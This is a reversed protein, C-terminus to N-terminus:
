YKEILKVLLRIPTGVSGKALFEGEVSSMRPAIDLHVWPYEKAFEYLFMAGHIAEGYRTKGVNAIDGFNGKIEDLYEDWLPLPWLYDGSEEGIQRFLKELHIDKTFLASAHQGLAVIAAGTLTAIDVVLRPNYKKAYTLADALIIRGEADTNLAEITKGSMTKLIDGPRFSQGSPMNEVAPILGVVNKKLKLAASAVISHIVAAGGTMDMNMELMGDGRKLNLGGSDFTVGKGVLVIPRGGSRGFYEIIIFRPKEQSGKAVGLVGGMGLKKINDEKLIKIKIGYKEVAEKAARALFEPTMDGGPTNALARAANVENAIIQGRRIGKQIATNKKGTIYVEEVMLWGEKPPTKYRVFEFNAMEFNIALAQAIDQANITIHPFSFHSFEVAIKKLKHQKALAIIKRAILFFTRLTIDNRKEIGMELRTNGQADQIFRSEKQDERFVIRTADEPLLSPQIYSIKM